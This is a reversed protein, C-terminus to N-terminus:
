GFTLAVKSQEPNLLNSVDVKTADPLMMWQPKGFTQPYGIEGEEHWRCAVRLHSEGNWFGTALAFGDQNHIIEKVKFKNTSGIM